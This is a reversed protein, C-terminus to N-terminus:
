VTFFLLLLLKMIILLLLQAVTKQTPMEQHVAYRFFTTFYIDLLNIAAHLKSALSPQNIITEM